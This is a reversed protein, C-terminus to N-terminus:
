FLFGNRNELEMRGNIIISWTFFINLPKEFGIVVIINM